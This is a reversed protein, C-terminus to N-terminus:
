LAGMCAPAGCTLRNSRAPLGCLCAPRSSPVTLWITGHADVFGAGQDAPDVFAPHEGAVRAVADPYLRATSRIPTPRRTELSAYPQTDTRTPKGTM